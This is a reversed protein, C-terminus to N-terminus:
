KWFREDIVIRRKTDKYSGTSSALSKCSSIRGVVVEETAKIKCDCYPCKIVKLEESPASYCGGM